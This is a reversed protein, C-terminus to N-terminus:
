ACPDTKSTTLRGYRGDDTVGETGDQLQNAWVLYLTRFKSIFKIIEPSM